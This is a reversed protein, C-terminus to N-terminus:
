SQFGRLAVSRRRSCHGVPVSVEEEGDSRSTTSRTSTRSSASSTRILVSPSALKTPSRFAAHHVAGLGPEIAASQDHANRHAELASAPALADDGRVAALDHRSGLRLRIVRM